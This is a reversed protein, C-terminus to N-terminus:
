RRAPELSAFETKIAAIRDALPSSTRGSQLLIGAVLLLVSIAAWVGRRFVWSRAAADRGAAGDRAKTERFREIRRRMGVEVDAPLDDALARRLLDDIETNKKDGANM